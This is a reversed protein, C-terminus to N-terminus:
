TLILIIITITVILAPVVVVVIVADTTLRGRRGNLRVGLRWRREWCREVRVVQLNGANVSAALDRLTTTVVEPDDHNGVPKGVPQGEDTSVVAARVIVGGAGNGPVNGAPEWGASANLEAVGGRQIRWAGPRVIRAYIGDVHLVVV